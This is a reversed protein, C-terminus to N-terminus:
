ATVFVEVLAPCAKIIDVARDTLKAAGNLSLSKLNPMARLREIQSDTLDTGDFVLQEVPEMKSIASIGDESIPCRNM